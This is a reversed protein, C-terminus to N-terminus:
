EIGECKMLYENVKKLSGFNRLVGEDDYRGEYYLVDYIETERFAALSVYVEVYYTRATQDGFVTYTRSVLEGTFEGIELTGM